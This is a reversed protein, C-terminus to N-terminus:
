LKAVMEVVARIHEPTTGCCGGALTAGAVICEKVGEAFIAPAMDYVTCDNADLRPKGANPEVLIPLASVSRYSAVVVAVEKPDLDGCNTGIFDAGAKELDAACDAAKHGMMTMGGGKV